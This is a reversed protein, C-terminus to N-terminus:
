FVFFFYGVRSYKTVKIIYLIKQIIVKRKEELLNKYAFKEGIDM